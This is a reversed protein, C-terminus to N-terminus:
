GEPDWHQLAYGIGIRIAAGPSEGYRLSRTYAVQFDGIAYLLAAYFEALEAILELVFKVM